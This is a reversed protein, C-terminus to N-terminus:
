EGDGNGRGEGRAWAKEQRLDNEHKRSQFM